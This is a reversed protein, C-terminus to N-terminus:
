VGGGPATSACQWTNPGIACNGNLALPWTGARPRRGSMSNASRSWKPNAFFTITWALQWPVSLAAVSSAMAWDFPLARPTATTSGAIESSSSALEVFAAHAADAEIEELAETSSAGL